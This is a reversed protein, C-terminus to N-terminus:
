LEKRKLGCLLYQMRSSAWECSLVNDAPRAAAKRAAFELANQIRDREAYTANTPGGMLDQKHIPLSQGHPMLSQRLLHVLPKLENQRLQAMTAILSTYEQGAM